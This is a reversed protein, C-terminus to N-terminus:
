PTGAVVTYPEVDNVVIAGAAVVAGKGITVCELVVAIAGIVVDDEVVVPMASPPEIVGALVSLACIHCNKGV